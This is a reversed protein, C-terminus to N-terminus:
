FPLPVNGTLKVKREKILNVAEVCNKILQEHFAKGKALTAVTADGTMGSPGSVVNFHEASGGSIISDDQDDFIESPSFRKKVGPNKAALKMDVLKPFLYLMHSTEM